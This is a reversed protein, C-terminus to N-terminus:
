NRSYNRINRSRSREAITSHNPLVSQISKSVDKEWDDKFSLFDALFEKGSMKLEKESM